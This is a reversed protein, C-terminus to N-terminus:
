CGKFEPSRKEAFAAEAERHDASFWLEAFIDESVNAAPPASLAAVKKVAKLALPAAQEFEAAIDLLSVGGVHLSGDAGVEATEPLLHAPLSGRETM